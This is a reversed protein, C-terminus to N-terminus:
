DEPEGDEYDFPELRSILGVGRWYIKNSRPYYCVDNPRRTGYVLFSVGEDGARLSHSIGTSPPRSIVHGARVELQERQVGDAAPVPSPWLEFTAGGDLIVFLEEDASHCHPDAGEHGPELRGYNVGAHQAGAQRAFRVWRGVDGGYESEADALNITRPPEPAGSHFPPPEAPTAFLLATAGDDGARLTPQEHPVPYVVCDGARLDDTGGSVVFLVDETARRPLQAHEGPRLQIRRVSVAIAGAAEALDQEPPVDDWHAIV